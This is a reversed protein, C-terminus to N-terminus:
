RTVPGLTDGPHSDAYVAVRDRSLAAWLEESRRPDLHVVARGDQRGVGAVPARVFTVARPDLNRLASALSRLGGNSLTDDVSVSRSAADLLDLTSSPSPLTGQEAVRVFLARLADQERGARDMEGDVIGHRERIYALAARGDLRDGDGRAPGVDIGGVADVMATFGTFDIVAFHDIRIRALNEVTEVLLSPGGLAYAANIKDRGHGPIDVWSDRPISAVAATTRDPNMRAIMLVDGRASGPDVATAASGTTPQDSRSDTGVLLFTLARGDAPRTSPDIAGFVDPVRRVNDGINETLLHGSGVAVGCVAVLVVAAAVLVRRRLLRRLLRRRRPLTSPLDATERAWARLFEEATRPQTRLSGTGGPPTVPEPLHPAHSRDVTV